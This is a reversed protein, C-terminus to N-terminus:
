AAVPLEGTVAHLTARINKIASKEDYAEGVIISDSPLAGMAELKRVSHTVDAISMRPSGLGCGVATPTRVILEFGITRYVGAHAFVSAIQDIRLPDGAQKAIIGTFGITNDPRQCNNNAGIIECQYGASELLDSVVVIQIGNWFLEEPTRNCHGGFAGILTVIKTGNTRMFGSSQFAIDWDGRMARDPCLADGEDGWKPRRRIAEIASITGELSLSVASGRSSGEQWGYDVLDTADKLSRFGMRFKPNQRYCEDSVEGSATDLNYDPIPHNRISSLDSYDAIIAAFTKARDAKGDHYTLIM